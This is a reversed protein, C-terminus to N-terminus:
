EDKENTTEKNEVNSTSTEEKSLVQEARIQNVAANVVQSLSNYITGVASLENARFSGRVSLSEILNTCSVVLSLPVGVARDAVTVPTTKEEVKVPQNTPTPDTSTTKQEDIVVSIKEESM